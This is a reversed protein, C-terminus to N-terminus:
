CVEDGSESGSKISPDATLGSETEPLRQLQINNENDTLRNFVCGNKFGLNVCKFLLYDIVCSIM